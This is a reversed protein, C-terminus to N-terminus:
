CGTKNKKGIIRQIKKIGAKVQMEIEKQDLKRIRLVM